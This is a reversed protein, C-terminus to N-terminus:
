CITIHNETHVKIHCSECLIIGNSVDWLEPCAKADEVCKINNEELICSFYKIHHAHLKIRRHSVFKCIQCTNDYKKFVELKWSLYEPSKRIIKKLPTIGGKWSHNNSGRNIDSLNVSTITEVAREINLCGCSKTHGTTLDSTAVITSNGCECICNWFVTIRRKSYKKTEYLNLVTLRNFKLGELNKHFSRPKCGCSRSLGSTLSNSLKKALKGCKCKCNWWSRGYYSLVEWYDFTQGTLDKYPKNKTVV